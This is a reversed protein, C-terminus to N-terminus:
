WVHSAYKVETFHVKADRKPLTGNESRTDKLASKRAEKKELTTIVPKDPVANSEEGEDRKVKEAEKEDRSGKEAIAGNGPENDATSGRMKAEVKGVDARGLGDPSEVVVAPSATVYEAGEDYEIDTLVEDASDLVQTEVTGFKIDRLLREPKQKPNPTNIPQSEKHVEEPLVKEICQPESASDLVKPRDISKLDTPIPSEIKSVNHKVLHLPAKEESQESDSVGKHPEVDSQSSEGSPDKTEMFEDIDALPVSLKGDVKMASDKNFRSNLEDPSSIRNTNNKSDVFNSNGQVDEDCSLKNGESTLSVLSSSSAASTVYSSEGQPIPPPSCQPPLLMPSSCHFVDRSTFPSSLKENSPESQDLINDSSKISSESTHYSHISSCKSSADDADIDNMKSKLCRKSNTTGPLSVAPTNESINPIKVDEFGLSRRMLVEGCPKLLKRQRDLSRHNKKESDFTNVNPQKPLRKSRRPLPSIVKHDSETDSKTDLSGYGCSLSAIDDLTDISFQGPGVDELLHSLSGTEDLAHGDGEGLLSSTCSSSGSEDIYRILDRPIGTEGDPPDCIIEPVHHTKTDPFKCNNNNNGESSTAGSM